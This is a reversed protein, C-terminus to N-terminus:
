KKKKGLVEEIEVKTHTSSKKNPKIFPKKATAKKTSRQTVTAVSPVLDEKSVGSRLVALKMSALIRNLSETLNRVETINSESLRIDFKGGTIEDVDKTLKVLPKSVYRAIMIALIVVISIIIFFVIIIKLKIGSIPALAESKDIKAVLGWDANKIYQTASFVEVGRYDVGELFLGENGLLAQTIPVDLREKPVIQLAGGEEEFIRTTFFVSDGNKSRQGLITEGTNKLGARDLMFEDINDLSLQLAIVGILEGRAQVRERHGREYVPAAIFAAVSDSPFYFEFNSMVSTEPASQKAKSFVEALLTDRYPGTLLNTEYDSEHVVSYFIQGEKDILFIDYYEQIEKYEELFPIEKENLNLSNTVIPMESLIHMEERKDGIYSELWISKLEATTQLHAFIEEQLDERMLDVDEIALYGIVATPVITSILFLILLINNIRM